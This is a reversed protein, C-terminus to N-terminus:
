SDQLQSHLDQLQRRTEAMRKVFIRNAVAGAVIMAPLGSALQLLLVKLSFGVTLIYILCFIALIMVGAGYRWFRSKKNLVIGKDFDAIRMEVWERLPMDFSYRQQRRRGWESIGASALIVVLLAAALVYGYMQLLPSLKIVIWVLLLSALILLSWFIVGPFSHNIAKRASKLVITKIESDTYSEIQRVANDKWVAKIRETDM